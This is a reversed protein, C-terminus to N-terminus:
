VSQSVRRQPWITYRAWSSCAPKWAHYRWSIFVREVNHARPSPIWLSNGHVEGSFINYRAKRNRQQGLKQVFLRYTPSKVRSFAWIVGINHFQAVATLWEPTSSLIKKWKRVRKAVTSKILVCLSFIILIQVGAKISGNVSWVFWKISSNNSQNIGPYDMLVNICVIIWSRDWNWHPEGNTM